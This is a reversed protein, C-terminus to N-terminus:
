ADLRYKWGRRTARLCSGLRARLAFLRYQVTGEPLGTMAAIEAVPRRERYFRVFLARDEGRLSEAFSDLCIAGDLREEAERAEAEAEPARSGPFGCAPVTEPETCGRGDQAAPLGAKGRRYYQWLRRKAVGHLWTSLSSDGRFSPLALWAAVLSEQVLDDLDFGDAVKRSLWRRLAPEYGFLVRAGRESGPETM